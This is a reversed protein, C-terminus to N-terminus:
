PDEKVKCNYEQRENLVVGATTGRVPIKKRATQMDRDALIDHGKNCYRKFAAKMPCLIRDCIDKGPESFDYRM